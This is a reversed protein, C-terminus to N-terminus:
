PALTFTGRHVTLEGTSLAIAYNLMRAPGDALLAPLGARTGGTALRAGLDEFWQTVWATEDVWEVPEFGGAQIM